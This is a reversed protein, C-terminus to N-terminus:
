IFGCGLNRRYQLGTNGTSSNTSIDFLSTTNQTRLNDSCAQRVNAQGTPGLSKWFRTAIFLDIIAGQAVSGPYYINPAIKQFGRKELRDPDTWYGRELAPYIDGAAIQQPVAGAKTFIQGDLGGVRLKLGNFDSVTRIQATAPDVYLAARVVVNGLDFPGTVAPTVIAASLPAGKYPGALYVRATSVYVPSPGAGAGVTATGIQSAAPCSPSSLEAKGSKAEAAHISDESCYPIGNLKGTLGKPLTFDLSKLEQEGDKRNIRIVLPSYAAAKPDTTLRTRFGRDRLAKGLIEDIKQEKTKDTM